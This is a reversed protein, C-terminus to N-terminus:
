RPVWSWSRSAMVLRRTWRHFPYHTFVSESLPASVCFYFLYCNVFYLNPSFFHVHICCPSLSLSTSLVQEVTSGPAATYRTDGCVIFSQKNRELLGKTEGKKLAKRLAVKNDYSFEQKLFKAIASRSSGSPSRLERIAYIVSDLYSKCAGKTKLPVRGSKKPRFPPFFAPLDTDPRTCPQISARCKKEQLALPKAKCVTHNNPSSFNSAHLCYLCAPEAWSKGPWLLICIYTHRGDIELSVLKIAEQADCEYTSTLKIVIRNATDM